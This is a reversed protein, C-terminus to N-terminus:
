KPLDIDKFSPGIPQWDQEEHGCHQCRRILENIQTMQHLCPTEPEPAPEANQQGIRVVGSKALAAPNGIPKKAFRIIGVIDTPKLESPEITRYATKTDAAAVILCAAFPDWMVPRKRGYKQERAELRRNRNLCVTVHRHITSKRFPSEAAIKRFEPWMHKPKHDFASDIAQRVEPPAICISCKAMRPAYCKARVKGAEALRNVKTGRPNKAPEGSEV